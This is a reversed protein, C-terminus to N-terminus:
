ACRGPEPMLFLGSDSRGQADPRTPQAEPALLPRVEKLLKGTLRFLALGIIPLYQHYAAKCNYDEYESPSFPCGGRCLASVMCGDCKEQQKAILRSLAPLPPPGGPKLGAIDGLCHSEGSEEDISDASYNQCTLVKGAMDVAITYPNSVFCRSGPAPPVGLTCAFIHASKHALFYQPLEGGVLDLFMQRCYDPLDAEPVRFKFATEDMITAIRSEGITFDNRNIIATLYDVYDKHRTNEATMVPAFGLSDPKCLLTQVAEWVEPDMLVDKGRLEQGPGDYSLGVHINNDLIWQLREGKLLSGNTSIFYGIISIGSEEFLSHLRRIEEFYVLPEGGWFQIVEVDRTGVFRVIRAVLEEPPLATVKGERCVAQSCYRCSFNCKQGLGIRVVIPRNEETCAAREEPTPPLPIGEGYFLHNRPDYIVISGNGERDQLVCEYM